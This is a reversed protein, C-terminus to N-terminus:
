VGRMRLNSSKIEHKTQQTELSSDVGNKRNYNCKRSANCLRAAYEVVIEHIHRSVHFFQLSLIVDLLSHSHDEKGCKCQKKETEQESLITSRFAAAEMYEHRPALPNHLRYTKPVSAKEEQLRDGSEQTM